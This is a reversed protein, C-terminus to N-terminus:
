AKGPADGQPAFQSALQNTCPGSYPDFLGHYVFETGAEYAAVANSSVCLRGLASALLRDEQGPMIALGPPMARFYVVAMWYGDPKRRHLDALFDDVFRAMQPHDGIETGFHDSLRQRLWAAAGAHLTVAGVAGAAALGALVIRRTVRTTM